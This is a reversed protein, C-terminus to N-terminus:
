RRAMTGTIQASRRGSFVAYIRMKGLQIGNLRFTLPQAELSPRGLSLPNGGNRLFIYKMAGASFIKENASEGM